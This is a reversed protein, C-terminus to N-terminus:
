FNDVRIWRYNGAFERKNNCVACISSSDIGTIASAIEASTYKAIMFGDITLQAVPNGRSIGQRVRASGYAMNYARTCWELNDARNNYKNEDKHNIEPYGNPNPLFAVAVLRHILYSKHEGKSSLNVYLYGKSEDPKLIRPTTTANYWSRVNGLNSVQYRGEFGEIDKWIEQM